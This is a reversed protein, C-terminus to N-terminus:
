FAKVLLEIACALLYAFVGVSALFFGAGFMIGVQWRNKLAEMINEAFFWSYQNSEYVAYPEQPASSEGSPERAGEEPPYENEDFFDPVHNM